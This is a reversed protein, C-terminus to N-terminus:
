RTPQRLTQTLKVLLYASHTFNALKPIKPTTQPNPVYNGGGGRLHLPLTSTDTSAHPSKAGYQSMARSLALHFGGVGAFLDVFDM